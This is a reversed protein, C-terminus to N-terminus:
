MVKVSLGDFLSNAAFGVAVRDGAVVGSDVLVSAGESEVVHVVRLRVKEGGAGDKELVWVRDSDTRSDTQVASKPLVLVTRRKGQEIRATAFLGPKLENGRNDFTVEVAFARSQPNIAQNVASIRGSFERDPYSDARASVTQGVKVNTLETEAVQLQLKIPQVKDLTVVKAQPGVFEGVNVLRASVFGSFPARVLTDNLAKRALDVQMKASALMAEASRVGAVDQRAANRASEYQQKVANLRAQSQALAAQQRQYNSRSVDGTKLLNQARAQEAQALQFDAEAAELNARAALVEPATDIQTGTRVKAQELAAASQQMGAEAQRLRIEAADSKLRVLVAGQAVYSGVDVLTQAVVGETEPAIGASQPAIFSGNATIAMALERSTVVAASVDAVLPKELKVAETKKSCGSGFIALTTAFIWINKNM